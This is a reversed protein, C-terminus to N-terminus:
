TLRAILAAMLMFSVIHYGGNILWLKVGRNEFIYNVGISTMVFFAGVLAGVNLAYSITANPGLIAALLSASLWHLLFALFFMLAINRQRVGSLDIGNAAAWPKGFLAPSYWIGGLLFTAITAVLVAIWNVYSFNITIEM